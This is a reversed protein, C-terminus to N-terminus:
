SGYLYYFSCETHKIAFSACNIPVNEQEECLLCIEDQPQPLTHHTKKNEPNVSM